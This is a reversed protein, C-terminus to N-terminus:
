RPRGRAGPGRPEARVGSRALVVLGVEVVVLAVIELRAVHAWFEATTIVGPEGQRMGYRDYRPNLASVAIMPGLAAGLRLALALPARPFPGRLGVLVVALVCPLMLLVAPWAMGAAVAVLWAAAVLLPWWLYRRLVGPTARTLM